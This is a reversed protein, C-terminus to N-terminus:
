SWLMADLSARCLAFEHMERGHACLGIIPILEWLVTAAPTIVQQWGETCVEAIIKQTQLGHVTVM